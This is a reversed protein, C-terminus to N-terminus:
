NIPLNRAIDISSLWGKHSVQHILTHMHVLDKAEITPDPKFLSGCFKSYRVASNRLTTESQETMKIFDVSYM